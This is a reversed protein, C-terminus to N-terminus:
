LLDVLVPELLTKLIVLSAIGALVVIITSGDWQNLVFALALGAAPPHEVNAVVMLLTALGVALAGTIVQVGAIPVRLLSWVACTGVYWCICGAATGVLYGGVLFRPRSLRARPMTFAIFSSAGLSAIVTTQQVRDLSVLVVLVALTALACQFLYRGKRETFRADLFRL